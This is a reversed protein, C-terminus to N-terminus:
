IVKKKDTWGFSTIGYSLALISGAWAMGALTEMATHCFYTTNYLFIADTAAYILAASAALRPHDKETKAIARAFIPALALKLMVHGSSDFGDKMSLGLRHSYLPNALALLAISSFTLLEKKSFQNALAEKVRQLLPKESPNKRLESIVNFAFVAAISLLAFNKVEWQKIRNIQEFSFHYKLDSCHFKQGLSLSSFSSRQVLGKGIGLLVGLYPMMPTVLKDSDQYLAEPSVHPDIPSSIPSFLKTLWLYQNYAFNVTNQILLLYGIKAIKTLLNRDNQWINQIEPSTLTFYNKYHTNIM